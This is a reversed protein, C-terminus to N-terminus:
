VSTDTLPSDVTHDSSGKHLYFAIFLTVSYVIIISSELLLFIGKWGGKLRKAHMAYNVNIFLHHEGYICILCTFINHMNMISPRAM